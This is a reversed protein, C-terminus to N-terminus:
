LGGKAREESDQTVSEQMGKLLDTYDIKAADEDSVYGDEVFRIIAGWSEDAPTKDSPLIMGLVNEGIAPPNGWAEIIVRKADESALFYFSKSVNLKVGSTDLFVTGTKYDLSEVFKQAEAVEYKKNPFM